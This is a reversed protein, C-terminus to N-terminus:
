GQGALLGKLAELYAIFAKRGTETMGILTQPKRGVFRKTQTVYGAEELKRLHTSLNGDTSQTKDKLVGFEAEHATSLYAMISLRVRGHIVDDITNPDLEPM